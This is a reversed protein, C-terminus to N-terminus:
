IPFYTKRRVNLFSLFDGNSIFWFDTNLVFINIYELKTTSMVNNWAFLIMVFHTVIVCDYRKPLALSRITLFSHLKSVFFLKTHCIWFTLNTSHWFIHLFEDLFVLEFRILKLDIKRSLFLKSNFANWNKPQFSKCM